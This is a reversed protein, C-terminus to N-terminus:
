DPGPVLKDAIQRAPRVVKLGRKRINRPPGVLGDILQVYYEIDAAMMLITNAAERLVADSVERTVPPAEVEAFFEDDIDRTEDVTLPPPYVAHELQEVRQEISMANGKPHRPPFRV